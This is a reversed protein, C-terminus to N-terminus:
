SKHNTELLWGSAVVVASVGWELAASPWLVPDKLSM